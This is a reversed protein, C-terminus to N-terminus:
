PQATLACNGILYFLQMVADKGQVSKVVFFAGDDDGCFSTIRQKKLDDVRYIEQDNDTTLDYRMLGSYSCGGEVYMYHYFSNCEIENPGFENIYSIYGETTKKMCGTLMLTIVCLLLFVKKLLDNGWSSYTLIQLM